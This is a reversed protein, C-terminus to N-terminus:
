RNPEVLWVQDGEKLGEVACRLGNEALVQVRKREPGMATAIRVYRDRGDKGEGRVLAARPVVLVNKLSEVEIEADLRLGPRLADGGNDLAVEVEFVQRDAKGVLDQTSKDFNMFEDQGKEAVREVRGSIATTSGVPRVTVAQGVEVKAIRGEDVTLVAKMKRLDTLTMVDWGEHIHRGPGFGLGWRNGLLVVGPIPANHTCEEVNEKLDELRKNERKMTKEFRDEARKYNTKLLDVRKEAESARKKEDQVKLRQEALKVPDPKHLKRYALGSEAVQLRQETVDLQKQHVESRAVFGEESLSTLIKLEEERAELLIKANALNNRANLEETAGPGLTLEKLRLTELNVRLERTKVQDEARRIEKSMREKEKVWDAKIRRLKAKHRTLSEQHPQPDLQFLLDGKKVRVGNDVIRLLTGHVKCPVDQKSVPRLAGKSRIIARFVEQRVVRARRPDRGGGVESFGVYLGYAVTSAALLLAAVLLANRGSKGRGRAMM